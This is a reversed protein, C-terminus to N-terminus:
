ILNVSDVMKEFNDIEGQTSPIESSDTRAIMIVLVVDNKLPILALHHEGVYYEYKEIYFYNVGFQNVKKECQLSTNETDVNIGTMCEQLIKQVPFSDKFESYNKGFVRFLSKDNLVFNYMKYSIDNPADVLASDNQIKGVFEKVEISGYRKPYSISFGFIDSTYNNFDETVTTKTSEINNITSVNTTEENKEVVDVEVSGHPKEEYNQTLNGDM